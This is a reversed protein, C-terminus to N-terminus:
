PVDQESVGVEPEPELEVLAAVLSQDEAPLAALQLALAAMLKALLGPHGEVQPEPNEESEPAVPVLCVGVARCAAVAAKVTSEKMEVAFVPSGPVVPPLEQPESQSM